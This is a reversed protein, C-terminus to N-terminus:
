GTPRPWATAPPWAPLAPPEIQPSMTRISTRTSPSVDDVRAELGRAAARQRGGRARADIENAARRQQLGRADAAGVHRGLQAAEAGALQVGGVQGGVRERPRQALGGHCLGLQRRAAVAHEDRHAAADVARDRREQAFTSTAATVSSSHRSASFSASPEHQEALATREARASACRM